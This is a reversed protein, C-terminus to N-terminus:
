LIRLNIAVNSAIEVQEENFQIIYIRDHTELFSEAPVLYPYNSETKM